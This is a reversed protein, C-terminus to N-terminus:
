PSQLYARMILLKDKATTIGMVNYVSYFYTDFGLAMYSGVDVVSGMFLGEGSKGKSTKFTGRLTKDDKAVGKMSSNAPFTEITDFNGLDPFTFNSFTPEVSKCFKAYNNFNSYFSKVTPQHMVVCEALLRNGEGGFSKYYNVYWNKASDNKLFPDAKLFAFIQYRSDKPDYVRIGYWMDMGGTEVTWGEPIKMSFNEHDYDVLQLSKAQSPAIAMDRGLDDTEGCGCLMSMSGIAVAIGCILGIIKMRKNTKKM